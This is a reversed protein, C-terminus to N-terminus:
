FYNFPNFKQCITLNLFLSFIVMEKTKLYLEQNLNTPPKAMNENRSEEKMLISITRFYGYTREIQAYKLNNWIVDDFCSLKESETDDARNGLMQHVNKKLRQLIINNICIRQDLLEKWLKLDENKNPMRERWMNLISSIEHFINEISENSVNSILIGDKVKLLINNSEDIEVM